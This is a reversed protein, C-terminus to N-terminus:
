ADVCKSEIGNRIEVLAFARCALVQRLRVHKEFLQARTEIGEIGALHQERFRILPRFVRPRIEAVAIFAVHREVERHHRAHVHRQRLFVAKRDDVDHGLRRRNRVVTLPRQEKAIMVLQGQLHDRVLVAIVHPPGVSSVALSADVEADAAAERRQHLVIAASDM